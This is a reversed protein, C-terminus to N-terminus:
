ILTFERFTGDVITPVGEKTTQDGPARGIEYPGIARSEVGARLVTAAPRADGMEQVSRRSMRKVVLPRNLLTAFISRRTRTTVVSAPTASSPVYRGPPSWSNERSTTRAKASDVRM